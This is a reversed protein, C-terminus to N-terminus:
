PDEKPVPVWAEVRTGEGVRSTVRFRGGALRVREEMGVVGLGPRRGDTGGPEFGVGFDEVVVSIGGDVSRLRLAARRARAHRAIDRLSEQTVRYLCYAIEPAIKDPVSQVVDITIRERRGFDDTLAELAAMLGLDDLISPHFQYALGHVDDSLTDVRDRLARLREGIAVRDAPISRELTDIEFSLLALRQNVDDHLERSIRRREDEQATMLRASLAQLEHQSTELELQKQHLAQQARRRETIDRWTCRYYLNNEEDRIAAVSLSVDMTHDHTRRLKLEVNRVHGRERVREIARALTHWGAPDHLERLAHGLLRERVVGTARELTRNCQVLRGTDVDVSAFMDPADAYLNEYRAQSARLAAEVRRRQTTDHLVSRTGVIRGARDRVASVHVTVDIASGKDRHLHLKLESAVGTDLLSALVEQM